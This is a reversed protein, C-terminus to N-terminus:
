DIMLKTSRPICCIQDIRDTLIVDIGLPYESNLDRLTTLLDPNLGNVFVTKTGDVGPGSLTLALTNEITDVQNDASLMDVDIIVFANTDPYSLSGIKAQELDGPQDTGQLFLFDADAASATASATNTGFYDAIDEANASAFFTVDANLLALGILASAAHLATPPDIVVGDLTNLKGPRAMSDMVLRFHVQADFVEDYATERIM